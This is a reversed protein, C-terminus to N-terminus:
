KLLRILNSTDEKSFGKKVLDSYFKRIIRTIPLKINTNKSEDFIIDLDKLMWKNMFGFNFKNNWMTLARNDLQWSQAAGSKIAALLPQIPLKKKKAFNLGESIGQIISVACIQNVMKALQGNGSKGMYILSKSYNNLISTISNIKKKEGGIMISLIGKKAGIEGGSVPADFFFCKKKKLNTYIKKTLQASATTHDIVISKENISNIIGDQNFYIEKLDNDNGVCSIIINSSKTFLNLTNHVKLKKFKRFKKVFNKTKLSNRNIINFSDAYKILHSAINSGMVGLGIFSIDRKM